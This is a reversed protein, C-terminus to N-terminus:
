QQLALNNDNFPTKFSFHLFHMNAEDNDTRGNMWGNTSMSTSLEQQISKQPIYQKILLQWFNLTQDCDSLVLLCM